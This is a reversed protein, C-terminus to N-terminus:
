GRRLFGTALLKAGLAAIEQYKPDDLITAARQTAFHEPLFNRFAEDFESIQEIEKKSLFKKAEIWKLDADFNLRGIYYTQVDFWIEFDTFPADFDYDESRGILVKRQLPIDSVLKLLRYLNARWPGPDLAGYEEDWQDDIEEFEEEDNTEVQADKKSLKKTKSEFHYEVRTGKEEIVYHFQELKVLIHPLCEELASIAKKPFDGQFDIHLQGKALKEAMEEPDNWNIFLPECFEYIHVLFKEDPLKKLKEKGSWDKCFAALIKGYEKVITAKLVLDTDLAM